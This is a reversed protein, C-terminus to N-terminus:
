PVTEMIKEIGIRMGRIKGKAYRTFTFEGRDSLQKMAFQMWSPSFGIEKAIETMKVVTESQGNLKKLLAERLATVSQPERTRPRKQKNLKNSNINHIDVKHNNMNQKDMNHINTKDSNVKDVNAKKASQKRRAPAKAKAPAEGQDQKQQKIFDFEDDLNVKFKAAM